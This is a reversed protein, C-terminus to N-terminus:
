PRGVALGVATTVPRGATTGFQCERQGVPALDVRDDPRCRDSRETHLGTDSGIRLEFRGGHNEGDAVSVAATGAM